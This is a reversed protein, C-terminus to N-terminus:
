NRLMAYKNIYMEGQLTILFPLILMSDIVLLMYGSISVGFPMFIIDTATLLAISIIVWMVPYGFRKFFLSVSTKVAHRLKKEDIVVASPAYFFLPTILLGAIATVIGSFKPSLHYSLINVAILIFTFLFLITFVKATYKELASIIERTVKVRTKRYKITINIMVIAFSLFLISFMTSAIIIAIDVVTLNTFISATRIFTSGLDLYTPLPSVLPILLAIILSIASFVVLKFHKSYTEFANYLVNAM